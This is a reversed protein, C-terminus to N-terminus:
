LNFSVSGVEKVNCVGLDNQRWNGAVRLPASRPSLAGRRTAALTKHPCTELTAVEPVNFVHRWLM